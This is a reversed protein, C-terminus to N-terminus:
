EFHLTRGRTRGRTRGEALDPPLVVTLYSFPTIADVRPRAAHGYPEPSAIEGEQETGPPRARLGPPPVGLLGEQPPDRTCPPCVVVKHAAEHKM